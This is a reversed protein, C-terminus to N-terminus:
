NGDVSFKFYVQMLYCIKVHWYGVKHAMRRRYINVNINLKYQLACLKGFTIVSHGQIARNM